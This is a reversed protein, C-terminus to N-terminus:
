LAKLDNSESSPEKLAETVYSDCDKKYPAPDKFGLLIEVRDVEHMIEHFAFFLDSPDTAFGIEQANIATSRIGELIEAIESLTDKDM